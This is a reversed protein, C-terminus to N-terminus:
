RGRKFKWSTAFLTLVFMLLSVLSQMVAILQLLLHTEEIKLGLPSLDRLSNFPLFVQKISFEAAKGLLSWDTNYNQGLTPSLYISYVFTFFFFSIFLITLPREYSTGYLSINGYWYGFACYKSSKHFTNLISSQELAYFIGEEERARQDEMALRLTRYANISDRGEKGRFFTFGPFISGQPIDVGHFSPPELFVTNSFNLPLDIKRGIFISSGITSDTIFLNHILRKKEVFTTSMYLNIGCNVSSHLIEFNQILV